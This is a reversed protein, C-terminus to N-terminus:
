LVRHMTFRLPVRLQDGLELGPDLGSPHAGRERFINAVAPESRVHGCGQGRSDSLALVALESLIAFSHLPRGPVLQTVSAAIGSGRRSPMTTAIKSM